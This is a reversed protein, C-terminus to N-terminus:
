TGRELERLQFEVLDLRRHLSLSDERSVEMFQEIARLTGAVRQYGAGCVTLIAVIDGIHFTTDIV